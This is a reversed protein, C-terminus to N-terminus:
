GDNTTRKFAKGGVPRVHRLVSRLGYTAVDGVMQKMDEPDVYLAAFLRRLESPAADYTAMVEASTADPPSGDDCFFDM